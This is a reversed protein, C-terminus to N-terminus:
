GAISSQTALKPHLVDGALDGKATSATDRAGDNRDGKGRVLGRVEVRLNAGKTVLDLAQSHLSAYAISSVAIDVTTFSCPHIVPDFKTVPQSQWSTSRRLLDTGALLM